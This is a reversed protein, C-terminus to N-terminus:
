QEQILCKNEFIDFGIEECFQTMLLILITWVEYITNVM